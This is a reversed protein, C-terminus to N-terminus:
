KAGKKGKQALSNKKETKFTLSRVFRDVSKWKEVERIQDILSATVHKPVRMEQHIGTILHIDRDYDYFYYDPSVRLEEQLTQGGKLQVALVVNLPPLQDDAEVTTLRCLANIGPDDFRWLDSFLLKRELIPVAMGFATSMITQLFTAFPGTYKNGPYNAEYSNMRIHIREVQEAKLDHKQILNMVATVPSQNFACTAYPKFFVNRIEWTQGIEAGILDPNDRQGTFAQCFGLPGEMASPAGSMGTQAILAALIGNRNALGNEFFIEMTGALFPELTGSAFAAAYSLAAAMQAPNLRLLKGAATASGFVGYIPSARFGRPTTLPTFEKGIAAAVEYGAIVAALLDKGSSKKWEAVALATPIVTTGIHMTGHTDEQGRSHFMVGNAFAAGMMSVKSGDGLLTAGKDPGKEYQKILGRAAKSTDMRFCSLGIGIGNLLCTKGKEIVEQPIRELSLESAFRGLREVVKEM